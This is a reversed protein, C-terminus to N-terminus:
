CGSVLSIILRPTSLLLLIMPSIVLQKHEDWQERLHQRYSQRKQAEARRRASEIIIFLASFLNALFPGLLHIFLIATNYDQVSQPYTTLCWFHTDVMIKDDGNTEKEIPSQRKIQYRFVHGYLPEHIITGVIVIPLIFIIWRAYRKSKKKDFSVGKYVSMGREVSVCANLWTDWYFFLKLVTEISKCGRELVSPRISMDMQTIVVFWFKITFMTISLLSTVSSALLYLGCGVQRSSANQFTLISCASSILGVVFMIVSLAATIKILLSQHHMPRHRKVEFRLIDDLTLGISKVQTNCPGGVYCYTSSDVIRQFSINRSSYAEISFSTQALSHLTTALLVYTVRSQLYVAYTMKDIQSCQEKEKLISNRYPNLPDFDNAYIYMETGYKKRIIFTYYADILVTLRIIEYYYYERICKKDYKQNYTTLESSYNSFIPLSA